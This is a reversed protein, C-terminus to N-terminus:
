IVAQYQIVEPGNKVYEPEEIIQVSVDKLHAKLAELASTRDTWDGALSDPTKVQDFTIRWFPSDAQKTITVLDGNSLKLKRLEWPEFREFVTTHM